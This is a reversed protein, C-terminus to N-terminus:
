QAAAARHDVWVLVVDAALFMVAVWGLEPWGVVKSLALALPAGAGLIVRGWRVRAAVIVAAGVLAGIWWRSVLTAAVATSVATIGLWQVSLAAGVNTFPSVLLPPGTAVITSSRRRTWWLIGLCVLTAALSLALGIWILRQPAWRLHIDITGPGSPRVLWGNAYGNILRPGDLSAGNSATATWGANHSQGLVLWFAKGDSQVRLDYSAEGSAVVRVRAPSAAPSSLQPGGAPTGSAGSSLVIRDLDLGTDLGPSASVAHSGATLSVPSTCPALTLGERATSSPGAVRVPFPKGDVRLLDGRCQDPVPGGPGPKPVGAMGLNSIAVPLDIQNGTRDDLTTVPRVSEVVLRLRQGTVAPFTISLPHTAGVAAGDSIPPLTLERAPVGDVDLRLKTPVSHRGDVVIGLSVSDVTRPSALDAEIWQGVQPGFPATWPTAPDGAFASSARASADGALHGSARFTAGSAITGLAADIRDDPANPDVRVTGSIDFSRTTPLVVRRDIALESDQRGRDAPNVRLRTMVVDLPHGASATGGRQALDVPLRITETVVSTGLRVEAFGVPNAGATNANSAWNTELPEVDLRKVTRASFRVVQGEPTLSAPGLNITVPKGRDFSLRVRTIWRDRVGAQPQVLTVENTHVARSPRLVLRDGHLPASGSVRWATQLNGDVANVPRDEPTYRDVDGYSTADVVGGHQEAVTRSADSTGPFLDFRQDNPDAALLQQGSRETAGTTDRISAFFSEPRRRNTDTLVLTAHAALAERLQADSLSALEFVPRDGTVLEAAAADVIGEGDGALVIPDATTSTHVIPPANQVGFLTIPPPNSASPPTALETSDLLSLPPPAMNPTAAGYGVPSTLGAALPRTLDAWLVRPRPTDFREYQLDSQLVVTGADLLRAVPALSAPEFTGEQIRHDLADLFNVSAVSGNPLVERTILPRNTLGPMVPDVTNGWRYAAFNSGPIALARTTDGGRTLAAGAQSEYSPVNGPRLLRSSFYGDRWVPAFGAAAITIVVAASVIERWRSGLRTAVASVGAALLGAFGLVILPVVRPTNRLALGVSTGNAFAKFVQGYVSPNDYPWAGVGVVTGVVVLLAFYARYRWRLLAAAVLTLLPVGYSAAIVLHNSAYASAQDLSNGLRDGGYFFWNGLGRLLDSPLSSVSVTRVSETLQLVPLGYRGQLSLGAAWWLSVGVTLVALRAGVRLANAAEARGRFLMLVLWLAPGLGTLCLTTANGGGIVLVILAFLAPDRWGPRRSARIVLGVLWPLGAWPLLLASIRATFALQYPTLLYVVAGVLAGSRRVGLMTFLWRAGLVAAFSLSGLWLRQAVWAQLGVKELVWYFPGMPFLYGINQHPVTGGGIHPDWLYLARAVLQGPNLYLYQKTDASVQGPSSAFFPVYALLALAAVELRQSWTGSQGIPTKARGVSVSVGTMGAPITVV